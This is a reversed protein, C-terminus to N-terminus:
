IYSPRRHLNTTLNKFIIQYISTLNISHYCHEDDTVKTTRTHGIELRAIVIEKTPILHKSQINDGCRVQNTGTMLKFTGKDALRCMSNMIRSDASQDIEEGDTKHM